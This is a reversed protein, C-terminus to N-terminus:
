VKEPISFRPFFHMFSRLNPKTDMFTPDAKKLLRYLTQPLSLGWRFDKSKNAGFKNLRTGTIMEIDKKILKYEKRGSPTDLWKKIVQEYLQFKTM